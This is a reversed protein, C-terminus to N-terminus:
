TEHIQMGIERRVKPFSEAMIEWQSNIKCVTTYTEMNSERYVRGEGEEGVM